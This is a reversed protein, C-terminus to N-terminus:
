VGTDTRGSPCGPSDHQVAAEPHTGCGVARVPVLGEARPSARVPAHRSGPPHRVRVCGGGRRLSIENGRHEEARRVGVQMSYINAQPQTVLTANRSHNDITWYRVDAIDIKSVYGHWLRQM